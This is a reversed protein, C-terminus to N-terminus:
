RFKTLIYVSNENTKKHLNVIFNKTKINNKLFNKRVSSIEKLAAQYNINFKLFVTIINRHKEFNTILNKNVLFRLFSINTKTNKIIITKQKKRLSDIIHNILNKLKSSM